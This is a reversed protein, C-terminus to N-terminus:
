TTVTSDQDINVFEMQTNTTHKTHFSHWIKFGVKVLKMMSVWQSKDDNIM